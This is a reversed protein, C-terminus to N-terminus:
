QYFVTPIKAAEGFNVEDLNFKEKTLKWFLQNLTTVYILVLQCLHKSIEDQLQGLKMQIILKLGESSTQSIPANTKAQTIGSGKRKLLKKTTSIANRKFKKFNQCSENPKDILFM